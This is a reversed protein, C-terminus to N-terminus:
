AEGPSRAPARLAVATVVLVDVLIGESSERRGFVVLGCLLLFAWWAAVACACVLARSIWKTAVVASNVREVLLVAENGHRTSSSQPDNEAAVAAAAAPARALHMTCVMAALVELLFSLRETCEKPWSCITSYTMWLVFAPLVVPSCVVRTPDSRISALVGRLSLGLGKAAPSSSSSPAAASSANRGGRIMRRRLWGKRIVPVAERGASVVSHAMGLGLLLAGGGPHMRQVPLCARTPVFAIIQPALRHTDTYRRTKIFCTTRSELYQM